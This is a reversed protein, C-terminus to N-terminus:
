IRQAVLVISGGIKPSFFNLVKLEFKSIWYLIINLIPNIKIEDKFSDEVNEKDMDKISSHKFIKRLLLLPLITLFFNKAELIKFNNKEFIRILKKIEYRRKHSYDYKSWLWMHAPVTIFVKGSPKLMKYINKVALDDNPIHELVDFLGIADFHEIFPSKSLDFQYKNELNSFDILKLAKGHLDGVSVNYGNQSLTKAIYGTGAGIEICKESKKVFKVFLQNIIENRIKFWFHKNENNKFIKLIDPDYDFTEGDIEPNFYFIKEIKNIKKGCKSCSLEIRGIKLSFKCRPCSIM